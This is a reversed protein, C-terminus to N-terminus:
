IGSACAYAGILPYGIAVVAIGIWMLIEQWRKM